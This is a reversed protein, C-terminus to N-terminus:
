LSGFLRIAAAIRDILFVGHLDCEVTRRSGDSAGLMQDFDVVLANQQVATQKLAMPSVLALAILVQGEIRTRNRYHHQRVRVDIM